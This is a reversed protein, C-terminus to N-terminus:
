HSIIETMRLVREKKRSQHDSICTLQHVESGTHGSLFRWIDIFTSKPLIITAFPKLLQGFHLFYGVRTVSSVESSM